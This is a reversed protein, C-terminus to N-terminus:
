VPRVARHISAIGGSLRRYGVDSWGVAALRSALNEPDPWALISRGLYRYARDRGNIAADILPLVSQLYVAHGARLVRSRPTSVECIVVRGGPRTVRLMEAMVHDVDPVNRLGYSIAVADFSEDAFPLDMADGVVASLDPVRSKGVRVMGFSLDCAVAHAGARCFPETSTGTGAALDLVLEGPLAAVTRTTARRWLRHQGFSILDNTLDYSHAVDDFMAAVDEQRKSLDVTVPSM